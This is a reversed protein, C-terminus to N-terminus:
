DDAPPPTAPTPRTIPRQVERDRLVPRDRSRIPRSSRHESARDSSEGDPSERASSEGGQVTQVRPSPKRPGRDGSGGAEDAAADGGFVELFVRHGRPQAAANLVTRIAQINRGGRGFIRGRDGGEFAVRLLVRGTSGVVECDIHLQEVADVLPSLLFRVLAVYDPVLADLGVGSLRDGDLGAGELHAAELDASFDVGAAGEPTGEPQLTSETQSLSTPESM